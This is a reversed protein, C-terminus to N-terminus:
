FFRLMILGRAAWAITRFWNTNVLLKWAQHDFGNALINHQPVSLFFTVSWIFILLFANTLMAWDSRYVPTLYFLTGLTILEILMPIAIVISTLRMHESHYKAFSDKGVQVFLPYHIFQILVIIGIMYFTAAFHIKLILNQEM